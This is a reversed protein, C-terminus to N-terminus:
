ISLPRGGAIRCPAAFPGPGGEWPPLSLRAFMVTEGEDWPGDARSPASLGARRPHLPPPPLKIAAALVPTKAHHGHDREEETDHDPHVEVIVRRRVEMGAILPELREDRDVGSLDDGSAQWALRSPDHPLPREVM